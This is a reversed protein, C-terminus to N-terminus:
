HILSPINGSSSSKDIASPHFSEQIVYSLLIGGFSLTFILPFVQYRLVIPSATVSFLLNGLWIAIILYLTKKYNYPIRKYGEIFYFGIFGMFFIINILPLIVPYIFTVQIKKDKGFGKVRPTKYGFWRVADQDVSDAGMNYIGLFEPSPTYYNIMNPWLYYKMYDGPFQKILWTGYQGYLPAVNAWRKLYSTTSDKKWREKLYTKLPANENWLYYIGLENDPRNKQKVHNLSDMHKSTITHLTKFLRPVPEHIKPSVHAYMYMANAALQWGGFPSFQITNTRKKYEFITYGTFLLVPILSLGIWLFKEKWKSKSLLIFLLSMFPFYLANYRISFVIALILGHFLFLRRGPTFIIWILSTLWLLSFAAFIADSSVFNSVYLGLPNLILLFSIIIITWKNPQLLYKISLIFFVICCQLLIYQVFFLGQDTHNFVSVFRLFKSYGVPWMNINNNQYAADIYSYSDPLFNPFPYLRIFTLYLIITSIFSFFIFIRNGTDLWVWKKFDEPFIHKDPFIKPLM